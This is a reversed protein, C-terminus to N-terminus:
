FPVGVAKCLFAMYPTGAAYTRELEGPLDPSTVMDDGLERGVVFDKWKLDETLPHAPDFGRPPRSLREGDPSLIATLRRGGSAKKWGVPDDVIAERVKRLTASDPRWIGLGAYCAGPEVHLYYGPAHVDKAVDHRFHIGVHTKYPRKDSAFRTDRNIRFLSRPGAHFHASIRALRPAFEEIFRLAPDRVDAEYRGRNADFWSRDNNRALRRLFSLTEKTFRAPTGM